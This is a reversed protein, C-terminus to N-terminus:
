QVPTDIEGLFNVRIHVRDGPQLYRGSQRAAEIHYEIVQEILGLDWGGFVWRLAGSLRDRLPVGQFVTGAPTGAMLLTREPVVAQEVPLSVLHEGFQWQRGARALTQVMIEALDWVAWSMPASQRTDGNVSLHLQLRPYFSAIDRPIVFLNGVPLFGPASKGTTFGDGSAIDDINANRLLAARDTFDNSLILGMTQPVQKFDTPTLTVFALEVEYDLLRGASQVSDGSRTPVVAKVFLFPGDEVTAERAHEVFNTGAAIHSNRLRVPMLLDAHPVRVSQGSAHRQEIETVLYDYSQIHWADIPDSAISSLDVGQVGEDDYSTVALLRAGTTSKVRAFTLAEALPAISIDTVADPLPEQPEGCASLVSLLLLVALKKVNM